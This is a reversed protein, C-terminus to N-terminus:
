ENYCFNRRRLILIPVVLRHPFPAVGGVCRDRVRVRRHVYSGSRRNEYRLFLLRCQLRSCTCPPRYLIARSAFRKVAPHSQAVSAMTLRCDGKRPTRPIDTRVAKLLFALGDLSLSRPRIEWPLFCLAEHFGGHQTRSVCSRNSSMRKSAGTTTIYSAPKCIEYM